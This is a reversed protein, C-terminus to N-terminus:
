AMATVNLLSRCTKSGKNNTTPRSSRALRGVIRHEHSEWSFDDCIACYSANDSCSGCTPEDEVRPCNGLNLAGGCRCCIGGRERFCGKCWRSMAEGDRVVVARDGHTFGGCCHCAQALSYFCWGCMQDGDLERTEREIVERCNACKVAVTIM